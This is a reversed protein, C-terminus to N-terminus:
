TGYLLSVTTSMHHIYSSMAPYHGLPPSPSTPRSYFGAARSEHFLDKWVLSISNMCMCITVVRDSRLAVSRQVTVVNLEAGRLWHRAPRGAADVVSDGGDACDDALLALVPGRARGRAANEEPSHPM